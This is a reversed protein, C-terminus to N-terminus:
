NSLFFQEMYVSNMQWLIPGKPPSKQIRYNELEM